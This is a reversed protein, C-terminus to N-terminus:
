CITGGQSQQSRLKRRLNSNEQKLNQIEEEMKRMSDRDSRIKRTAGEVLDATLPSYRKQGNKGDAIIIDDQCEKFLENKANKLRDSTLEPGEAAEYKAHKPASEEGSDVARRKGISKASPIDVTEPNWGRPSLPRTLSPPESILQPPEAMPPPQLYRSSMTAPAVRGTHISYGMDPAAAEPHYAMLPSHYTSPVNPPNSPNEALYYSPQVPQRHALYGSHHVHRISYPTPGISMGTFTGISRGDWDRRQGANAPPHGRTAPPRALPDQLAGQTREFSIRQPQRSSGLMRDDDHSGIGRHDVEFQEIESMPTFRSPGHMSPTGHQAPVDTQYTISQRVTPFSDLEARGSGHQSQFPPIHFIRPARSPRRLNSRQISSEASIGSAGASQTSDEQFSSPKQSASLRSPHRELSFLAPDSEASSDDTSYGELSRPDLEDPPCSRERDDEEQEFGLSSPTRRDNNHMVREAGSLRHHAKTRRRVSPPIDAGQPRSRNSGHKRAKNSSREIRLLKIIPVAGTDVAALQQNKVRHM